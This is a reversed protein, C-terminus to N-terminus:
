TAQIKQFSVRYGFSELRRKANRLNVKSFFPIDLYTSSDSIVAYIVEYNAPIPRTSPILSQYSTPLLVRVKDRFEPYSLFLEASVQGQAFLHSLVSSAGYRKVHIVKGDQTLLDCFEIKNYPGGLAVTQRDMLCIQMEQAARANYLDEHEGNHSNPLSTIAASDRFQRFEDNIKQAFDNEIQYWNGNSLIHTGTQDNIECYICSYSKWSDIVDGGSVGICEILTNEYLSLDVIQEGSFNELFDALRIDDGLTTGHGGIQFNNVNEWPIIQPIAMWVKEFEGSSIKVLLQENLSQIKRPDNIEAVQDVWGFNVKYLDSQYTELCVKLFGKINLINNPISVSLLDKGTVLNGFRPDKSRGTVGQVLDQEIDIGFDAATGDRSMQERSLKPVASMNQKDISRLHEPDIINLVVKLGFREEWIGPSLLTHGFGFTLVFVRGEVQVMFAAKSSATFLKLKGDNNRNNFLGSFFKSVWPPSNVHSDGYFIAGVEAIDEVVLTDYNKLIERPNSFGEKILYISVKNKVERPM